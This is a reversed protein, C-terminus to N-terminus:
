ADENEEEAQEDKYTEIMASAIEVWNVDSMFARAYSAALSDEGCDGCEFLIQEAYEHLSEGLRYADSLDAKSYYEVPNFGEFIELNVRWTAYNTWGNYKNDNM